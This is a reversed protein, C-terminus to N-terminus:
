AEFRALVQKSDMGPKLIKLAVKRRIPEQQEAMYVVGFGGEGVEQLLKYPGIVTGRGENRPEGCTAIVGAPSALFNKEREHVDLLAQVRARLEANDGCVQCLYDERTASADLKRALNFIAEESFEKVPM